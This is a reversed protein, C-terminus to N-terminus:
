YIFKVGKKEWLAVFEVLDITNVKQILDNPDKKRKGFITGNDLYAQGDVFFGDVCEGKENYVMGEVVPGMLYGMRNLYYQNHELKM